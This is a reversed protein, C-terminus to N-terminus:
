DLRCKECPLESHTHTHTNLTYFSLLPRLTTFQHPFMYFFVWSNIFPLSLLMAMNITEANIITGEVM